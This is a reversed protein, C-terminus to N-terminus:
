RPELATTDGALAGRLRDALSTELSRTAGHSGCESVLHAKGGKVLHFCCSGSHCGPVPGRGPVPSLGSPRKCWVLLRPM